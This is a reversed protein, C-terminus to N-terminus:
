DFMFKYLPNLTYFTEHIHSVLLDDPSCYKALGSVVQRVKSEGVDIEEVLLSFKCFFIEASLRLISDFFCTKIEPAKTFSWLKM